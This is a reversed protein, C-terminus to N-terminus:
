KLLLHRTILGGGVAATCTARMTAGGFCTRHKQLKWKRLVILVALSSLLTVLLKSPCCHDLEMCCRLLQLFGAASASLM